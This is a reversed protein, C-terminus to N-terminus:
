SGDERIQNDSNLLLIKYVIFLILTLTSMKLVKKKASRARTTLFTRPKKTLFIWLHKKTLFIWLHTM